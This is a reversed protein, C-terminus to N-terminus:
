RAGAVLRELLSDIAEIHLSIREEVGAPVDRGADSCWRQVVADVDLWNDLGITDRDPTPLPAPDNQSRQLAAMMRGLLAFYRDSADIYRATDQSRLYDDVTGSGNWDGQCLPDPQVEAFREVRDPSLHRGLPYLRCALPRAPHIACGHPDLFQCAATGDGQMLIGGGLDTHRSIVEGTTLRLYEGIRAIEYPNVPIAKGHCCRSCAGCRYAFPSSRQLSYGTRLPLHQM